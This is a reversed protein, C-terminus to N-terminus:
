RTVEGDLDEYINNLMKIFEEKNIGLYQAEILLQKLEKKIFNMKEEDVKPKFDSIYTGKGRLVEIIKERELEKYAKSVTNPNTTIMIALERVSPLKDGPELIGRVINEKIGDIIQEYIPKSSRSDIKIM